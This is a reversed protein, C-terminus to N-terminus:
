KEELWRLAEDMSRVIRMDIQPHENLTQYMRAYGVHVPRPAVVPSKVRRTFQRERRRNALLLVDPFAIGVEGLDTVDTIRDKSATGADELRQFEAALTVLDDSTLAGFLRAYLFRGQGTIEFPM